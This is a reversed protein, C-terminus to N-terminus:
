SRAAPSPTTKLKNVGEASMRAWQRFMREFDSRNTVRNRQMMFSGDGAVQRDVGRGLIAGSMSDRVEVILTAEGADDGYTTVRGPAMVDPAAVDLDAIATRVRLVDPGPTAVVEYGAERYAEVFAEQFGEQAAELIARAEDDSIDRSLGRSSNNYDRQWNRKFAVDTPDLMVRTYPTFDAGPAIFAADFRDTDVRVLGDWERANQAFAPAVGIALAVLGAKLAKHM